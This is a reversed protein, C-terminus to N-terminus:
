PALTALARTALLKVLRTQEEVKGLSAPSVELARKLVDTLSRGGPTWGGGAAAGGAPPLHRRAQALLDRRREADLRVGGGGNGTPPVGPGAPDAPGGLLAGDGYGPQGSPQGLYLDLHRVIVLLAHELLQLVVAARETQVEM